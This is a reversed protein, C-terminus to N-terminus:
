KKALGKEVLRNLRLSNLVVTMSSASMAIAAILPTVMGAFALPVAILNYMITLGLNTRTLRMSAKATEYAELVPALKDGQFVIDAANQTVTMATAPSASVNATSLAPADNLGDGVMLVTEGQTKMEELVTCKRDPLVGAHYDTVGLKAAIEATVADRDGSLIATKLGRKQLEAMVAASDERLDDRFVFRQVAKGNESLWLEVAADETEGSGDALAWGRRGLRIRKGSKETELGCGAIDTVTLNQLTGDYGAVLAQSLPHRSQSAMSAALKMVAPKIERGDILSMKGRTLTGTKDFVIQTVKSLRELADGSKILIGKKFLRGGAMVQVIPIALGLACPCTIILLSVAYIVAQHMGADMVFYWFLFAALSLTHVAPTYLAAARESLRVYKAGGQEAKEMLQIIEQFLSREVSQTVRVTVPASLNVMGALVVQGTKAKQPLSEGTLLSTDLETLGSEIVGDAAIKEGAAVQLLMDEAIDKYPILRTKGNKELVTAFGSMLALLDQAASRAKGRAQFNLYRGALLFFMLMTVAEFYVHGATGSLMEYLSLATALILALSVPVDMNARGQKLAGFASLFFVRGAYILAPLAIAASLLEFLDRTASSGGAGSWVAISLLMINGSAFGAVGMSKLLFRRERKEAERAADPVYPRADFGLANVAGLLENAKEKAGHFVFTLHRTTMNVRASIIEPFAQLTKEINRVCSMCHIGGVVAELSYRGGGEETLYSEVDVDM